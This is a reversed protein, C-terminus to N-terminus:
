ACPAKLLTGAQTLAGCVKAARNATVGSGQVVPDPGKDAHKRHKWNPLCNEVTGKANQVLSCNFCSISANRTHQTHMAIGM